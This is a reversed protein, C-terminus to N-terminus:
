WYKMILKRTLRADFQFVTIIHCQKTGMIWSEHNLRVIRYELVHLIQLIQTFYCCRTQSVWVQKRFSLAWVLQGIGIVLRYISVSQLVHCRTHATTHTRTHPHTHTQTHRHRHVERTTAVAAPVSSLDSRYFDPPHYGKGTRSKELARVHRRVCAICHVFSLASISGWNKISDLM